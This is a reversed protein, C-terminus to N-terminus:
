SKGLLRLYQVILEDRESTEAGCAGERRGITATGAVGLHLM